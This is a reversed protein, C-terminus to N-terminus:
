TQSLMRDVADTIEEPTNPVASVNERRLIYDSDAYALPGAIQEDAGLFRSKENSWLRKNITLTNRYHSKIGIPAWNTLVAPVGFTGAVWAPGSNTGILFRSAALLYLDLWEERSGHAYDIVRPLEPMKTMTPNGLRVVWGGNDTIRRIAPLYDVVNANRRTADVNERIHLTVFWADTPLGLRELVCKGRERHASTIKLLPGRRQAQWQEEVSDAVDHFWQWRGDHLFVTPYVEALLFRHSGSLEGRPDDFMEFYPRWYDLYLSNAETLQNRVVVFDYCSIGLSKQKALIDLLAIHGIMATFNRGIYRRHSPLGVKEIERAQVKMGAGWAAVADSMSGRAHYAAGLLLYGESDLSKPTLRFIVDDWKGSFIEKWEVDYNPAPSPPPLAFSFAAPTSSAAVSSPVFRRAVTRALHKASKVPGHESFLRLLTELRKRMRALTDAYGYRGQTTASAAVTVALCRGRLIREAWGKLLSM